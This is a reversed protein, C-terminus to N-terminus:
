TTTPSRPMRAWLALKKTPLKLKSPPLKLRNKVASAAQENAIEALKANTKILEATQESATHMEDRQQAFIHAQYFVGSTTAVIFILTLWERFSKGRDERKEEARNAQGERGIADILAAFDPSPGGKNNNGPDREEPGPGDKEEAADQPPIATEGSPIRLETESGKWDRLWKPDDDDPM